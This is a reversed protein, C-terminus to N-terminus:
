HSACCWGSVSPFAGGGFQRTIGSVARIRRAGAIRVFVWQDATPWTVVLWRGEPSAALRRFEGTGRFVLPRFPHLLFVDSQVGHVRIVAVQHTGPIFTADADRTADSPDDQAVVRGSLDYVRLAYPRLVLLLKGDSSWELRTPVAGPQTRWRLAGRLEYVYVRGRTDAYALVFPLGPRWAPAVPAAAPLGGADVDKTGDGAVVHLRSTTVYAIRTDTRTGGWAPARVQRRALSWHVNGKPDLTALENQRTAVVFRGFPSWAAQRYHGLLRRSGDAQVIWPGKASEVLLEGPAPLAFLAPEAHEVGVAKRISNLVARGPPSAVVGAVVAAAAFVAVPRWLHRARPAPEREEFAARVVRWAREEAGEPLQVPHLKM